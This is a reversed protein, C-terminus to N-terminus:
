DARKKSYFWKMMEPSSGEDVSAEKEVTAGAAPEVLESLIWEGKRKVLSLYRTGATVYQDSRFALGERQWIEQAHYDIRVMCEDKLDDNLNRVLVIDAKRICFNRFQVTFNELKWNALQERFSKALEPLLLGELESSLDGAELGLM